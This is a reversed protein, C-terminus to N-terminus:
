REELFNGAEPGMIKLIDAIQNEFIAISLSCELKQTEGIWKDLARLSASIDKRAIEVAKPSGSLEFFFFIM